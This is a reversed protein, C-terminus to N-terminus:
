SSRAAELAATHLKQPSTQPKNFCEVVKYRKLQQLPLKHTPISSMLVIPIDLWDDYSRLEHMFEILNNFELHVDSVVVSFPVQEPTDLEDLAAQAGSVATVELDEGLGVSFQRRLVTDPEILLLRKAM